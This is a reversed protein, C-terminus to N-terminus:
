RLKALEQDRNALDKKLHAAHPDTSDHHGLVKAPADVLKDVKKLAEMKISAAAPSIAPKAVAKKKLNQMAQM